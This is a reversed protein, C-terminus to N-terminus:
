DNLFSGDPRQIIFSAEGQHKEVFSLASVEDIFAEVFCEGQGQTAWVKYARVETM